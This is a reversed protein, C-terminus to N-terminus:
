KTKTPQKTPEKVAAPAPTEPQKEPEKAPVFDSWGGDGQAGTDEGAPIFDKYEAM